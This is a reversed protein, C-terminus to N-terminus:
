QLLIISDEKQYPGGSDEVWESQDREFISGMNVKQLQRRAEQGSRAPTIMHRCLSLYESKLQFTLPGSTDGKM